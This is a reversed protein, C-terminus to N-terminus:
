LSQTPVLHILDAAELKQLFAFLDETVEIESIDYEETIQQIIKNVSTSGNILNWISTGVENLTFISDLNAVDNRVPVIVTEGAICRTVIRTDKVFCSHL